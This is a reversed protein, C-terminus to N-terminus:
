PISFPDRNWRRYLVLYRKAITALARVDVSLALAARISFPGLYV